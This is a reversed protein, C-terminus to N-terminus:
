VALYQSVLPFLFEGRGLISSPGQPHFGCMRVVLGCPITPPSAPFGYKYSSVTQLPGSKRLQAYQWKIRTAREPCSKRSPESPLLEEPPLTVLIAILSPGPHCAYPMCLALHRNSCCAKHVCHCLLGLSSTQAQRLCIGTRNLVRRM